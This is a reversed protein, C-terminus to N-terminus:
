KNKLLSSFKKIRREFSTTNSWNLLYKYFIDITCYTGTVISVLPLKNILFASYALGIFNIPYQLKDFLSQIWYKNYYDPKVFDETSTLVVNGDSAIEYCCLDVQDLNHQSLYMVGINRLTNKAINKMIPRNNNNGHSYDIDIGCIIDFRKHFMLSDVLKDPDTHIYMKINLNQVNIFEMLETFADVYNDNRNTLINKYAYDTFHVEALQHKLILILKLEQYLLFSGYFLINLKTNKNSKEVIKKEFRERINTLNRTYVCKPDICESIHKFHNIKTLKQASRPHYPIINKDFSLRYSLEEVENFQLM